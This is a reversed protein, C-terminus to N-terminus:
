KKLFRHVKDDYIVHYTGKKLSTIDVKMAIGSMVLNGFKDYIEYAKEEKKDIDLFKRKVGKTPYWEAKHELICDGVKENYEFEWQSNNVEDLYKEVEKNYLKMGDYAKGKPSLCGTGTHRYQFNYEKAIPNRCTSTIRSAHLEFKGFYLRYVYGQKILKKAKETTMSDLNNLVPNNRNSLVLSDTLFAKLNARSTSDTQANTNQGIGVSVLSIFIIKKLM